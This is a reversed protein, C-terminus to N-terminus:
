VPGIDTIILSSTVINVTNANTSYQTRFEVAVGPTAATDEYVFSMNGAAGAGISDQWISFQGAPNSRWFHGTVTAAAVQQIATCSHSLFYRRGVIPTFTVSNVTTDAAGIGNVSTGVQSAVRGWAVNWNSYGVRSM